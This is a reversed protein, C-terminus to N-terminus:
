EGDVYYWRGDERRFRSTEHLRQASGGGVRYRAIFEVLATDGDTEHRLLKLGLWKTQPDRHLDLSAPRTSEHWTSLLYAELGRAYASYRSRMLAEATAAPAGEHLPRCCTAYARRENCPCAPAPTAKM